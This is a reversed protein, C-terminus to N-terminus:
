VLQLKEDEIGAGVSPNQHQEWKSPGFIMNMRQLIEEGAPNLVGDRSILDQIKFVRPLEVSSHEFVARLTGDGEAIAGTSFGYLYSHVDKLAMDGSEILSRITNDVREWAAERVSKFPSFERLHHETELLRRESSELAVSLEELKPNPGVDHVLFENIPGSSKKDRRARMHAPRISKKMLLRTEADLKEHLDRTTERMHVLLLIQESEGEADLFIEDM